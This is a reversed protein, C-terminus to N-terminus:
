RCRPSTTTKNAASHPSERSVVRWIDNFSDEIHGLVKMDNIFSPAPTGLTSKLAGNGGSRRRNGPAITGRGPRCSNWPFSAPVM